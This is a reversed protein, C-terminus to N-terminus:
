GDDRVGRVEAPPDSGSWFMRAACPAAGRAARGTPAM